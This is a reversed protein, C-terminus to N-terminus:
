YSPVILRDGSSIYDSSLKNLKMIDYVVKRPDKDPSLTSAISWLTDGTKVIITVQKKEQKGEAVSARFSIFSYALITFLIFTLILFRNFKARNAIRYRM